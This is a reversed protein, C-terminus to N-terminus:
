SGAPPRSAPPPGTPGPDAPLAGPPPPPGDQAGPVWPAGSSPTSAYVEGGSADVAPAVGVDVTAAGDDVAPPPGTAAATEAAAAEARLLRRRRRRRTLWRGLLALAALLLLGGVVIALGVWTSWRAAASASEGATTAADLDADALLQDAQAAKGDVDLVTAGLAALPNRGAAAEDAAGVADVATAARPLLDALEDYAAQDDASQYLATVKEPVDMDHRQAAEQVAVAAPGLGAVDDVVQTATDFEWATMARRLGLPPAFTGDAADVAQYKRLAKRRDKLQSREDRTVVWTKFTKVAKDNGGVIQDLDLFRQWGSHGVTLRPEGPAAYASEGAIAAALVTSRADAATDDMLTKMVVYSAPYGYGDDPQARGGADATWSNLPIARKGQASVPRMKRPKGGLEAVARAALDQAVGEYLWREDLSGSSAWAHTLEHYLLEQDLEEGIVIEDARWDFWGDYGRVNVARDERVTTLGGPWPTGLLEELAPVGKKMRRVVFRLWRPDDRYAMVDVQQDGVDVTKTRAIEPDRASIVAWFGSSDTNQTFTYTTTGDADQETFDDTTADFTMTEPLVVEVTNQGADGPGFAAFTAYGPGVRTQDESRPAEGELVFRIDITRSQGYLLNSPFQVTAIATSPDETAKRSVSLAAGNSTATLEQADAPVPITIYPLYFYQIYNGSRVSPRENRVTITMSAAVVEKKAQLEYRSTSAIDIGGDAHAVPAALLLGAVALVTGRRGRAAYTLWRARARGVTARSAHM